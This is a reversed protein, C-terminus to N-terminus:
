NQEFRPDQVTITAHRVGHRRNRAVPELKFSNVGAPIMAFPVPTRCVMQTHNKSKLWLSLRPDRIEPQSRWFNPQLGCEIRLHDLQLEVQKVNKPFYRRVNQLGVHLGSVESGNCLAKVVM